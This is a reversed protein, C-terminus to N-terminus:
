VLLTYIYIHITGIIIDYLHINNIVIYMLIEQLLVCFPPIFSFFLFILTELMQKIVIKMFVDNLRRGQSHFM